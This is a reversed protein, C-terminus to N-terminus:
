HQHAPADAGGATAPKPVLKMGCKPCNGPKDQKIEPHMPCTYVVKDGAMCKCEMGGAMKGDKMDACCAMGGHDHGAHAATSNSSACAGLAVVLGTLVMRTWM